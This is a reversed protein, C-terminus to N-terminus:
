ADVSRLSHTSSKTRDSDPLKLMSGMPGRSKGHSSGPTELRAVREKVDTLAGMIETLKRMVARDPSKGYERPSKGFGRTMGRFSSADRRLDLMSPSRKSDSHLNRHSGLVTDSGESPLGEKEMLEDTPNPHTPRTQTPILHRPACTLHHPTSALPLPSSSAPLHHIRCQQQQLTWRRLKSAGVRACIPDNARALLDSYRRWHYQITLACWEEGKQHSHSLCRLRLALMSLRDMRLFAELVLVCVRRASPGDNDFLRQVDERAILLAECNTRAVLTAERRRGLLAAQGFIGEHAM